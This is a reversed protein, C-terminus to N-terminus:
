VEEDDDEYGESACAEYHRTLALNVATADGAKIAALLDSAAEDKPSSKAKPKPSGGMKLVAEDV